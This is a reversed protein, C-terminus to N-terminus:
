LLAAPRVAQSGFKEEIIDLARNLTNGSAPRCESDFISLQQSQFLRDPHSVSIGLLRIPRRGAETKSLLGCVQRYVNGGDNTTEPLTLSRTIQRFDQYKVKLSITRGAFGSQRMRRTVRQALSLLAKRLAELELVDTDFTEEQGVSKVERDTQVERDDIGRALDYLRRGHEGFEKELLSQPLRSLDGITSVNFRALAKQTAEGVGWLRDIPLPDLFARIGEPSVVTLGDPKYLGSAMKALFKNPAVGASLSLGIKERIFTKIRRAMDEPSGFLRTSATIDLFAEDISLPEVLPTFYCFLSFINKSIEQYRAMRVPLFVGRPCLRRATVIPQASHVGFARAEYSAASVVGRRSNGGVIVPRGKLLPDDLVEVSAYFADMDLHIIRRRRSTMERLVIAIAKRFFLSAEGQQTPVGLIQYPRPTEAFPNEL